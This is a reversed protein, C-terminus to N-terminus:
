YITKLYMEKERIDVVEPTEAVWQWAHEEMM